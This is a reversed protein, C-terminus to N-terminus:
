FKVNFDLIFHFLKLNSLFLLYSWLIIYSCIFWVCSSAHHRICNAAKIAGVNIYKFRWWVVVGPTDPPDPTSSFLLKFQAHHRKKIYIEVNAIAASHVMSPFSGLQSWARGSSKFFASHQNFFWAIKPRPFDTSAIVWGMDTELCTLLPSLIQSCLPFCTFLKKQWFFLPKNVQCLLWIAWIQDRVDQEDPKGVELLRRKEILGLIGTSKM